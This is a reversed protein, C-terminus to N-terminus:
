SSVNTNMQNAIASHFAYNFIFVSRSIQLISHFLKGTHSMYSLPQTEVQLALTVPEFGGFTQFTYGQALDKVHLKGVGSSHISLNTGTESLPMHSLMFECALASFLQNPLRSM